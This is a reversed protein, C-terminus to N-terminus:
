RKQFLKTSQTFERLTSPTSETNQGFFLLLISSSYTHNHRIRNQEQLFTRLSSLSPRSIACIANGAASAKVASGIAEKISVANMPWIPIGYVRKQQEKIKKKKHEEIILM